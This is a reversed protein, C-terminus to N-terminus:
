KWRFPHHYLRYQSFRINTM